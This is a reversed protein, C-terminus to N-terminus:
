DKGNLFPISYFFSSISLYQLYNVRTNIPCAYTKWKMPHMTSVWGM